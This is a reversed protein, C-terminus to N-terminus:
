THIYTCIQNSGVNDVFKRLPSISPGFRMWAHMGKMGCTLNELLYSYNLPLFNFFFCVDGSVGEGMKELVEM